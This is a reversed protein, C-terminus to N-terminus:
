TTIGEKKEREWISGWTSTERPTFIHDRIKDRMEKQFAGRGGLRGTSESATAKQVSEREGSLGGQFGRFSFPQLHFKLSKHEFSLLSLLLFDLWECNRPLAELATLLDSIYLMHLVTGGGGGGMDMTNITNTQIDAWILVCKMLQM